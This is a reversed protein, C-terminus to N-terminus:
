VMCCPLESNGNAWLPGFIDEDLPAYSGNAFLVFAASFPGQTRALEAIAAKVQHILAIKALPLSLLCVKDRPGRDVMHVEYDQALNQFEQLAGQAPGIGLIKRKTTNIM